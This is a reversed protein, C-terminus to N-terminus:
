KTDIRDFLHSQENLKISQELQGFETTSELNTIKTYNENLKSTDM